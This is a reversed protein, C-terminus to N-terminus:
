NMQVIKGNQGKNTVATRAQKIHNDCSESFPRCLSLWLSRSLFYTGPKKICYNPKKKKIQIHIIMIHMAILIYHHLYKKFILEEAILM